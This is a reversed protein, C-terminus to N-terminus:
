AVVKLVHLTYPCVKNEDLKMIEPYKKRETDSFERITSAVKRTFHAIDSAQSPRDREWFDTKEPYRRQPSPHRIMLNDCLLTWPINHAQHCSSM